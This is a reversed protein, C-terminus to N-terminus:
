LKYGCSSRHVRGRAANHVFIQLFEGVNHQVHPRFPKTGRYLFRILQTRLARTQTYRVAVRGFRVFLCPPLGAACRSDACVWGCV